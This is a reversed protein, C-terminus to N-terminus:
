YVKEKCGSLLPALHRGSLLTTPEAGLDGLIRPCKVPIQTVEVRKVSPPISCCRTGELLSDNGTLCAVKAISVTRVVVVADISQEFVIRVLTRSIQPLARAYVRVGKRQSRDRQTEDVVIKVDVAADAVIRIRWRFM